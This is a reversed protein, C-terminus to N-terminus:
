RASESAVGLVVEGGIVGALESKTHGGRYRYLLGYAVVYLVSGFISFPKTHRVYRIVFGLITGAIAQTFGALRTIRTAGEVGRRTLM